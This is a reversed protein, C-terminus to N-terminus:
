GTRALVHGVADRAGESQELGRAQGRFEAHGVEGRRVFQDAPEQAAEHGGGRRGGIWGGIRGGVRFADPGSTLLLFCSCVSMSPFSLPPTTSAVPPSTPAAAKSSWRLC